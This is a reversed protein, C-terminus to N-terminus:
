YGLRTLMKYVLLAVAAGGALALMSIWSRVRIPRHIMDGGRTKKTTNSDNGM